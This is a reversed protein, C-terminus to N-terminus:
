SFTHYVGVCEGIISINNVSEVIPQYVSDSSCPNLIVQEGQWAVKKIFAETDENIRVAYIKGSHYEYCKRVFVIDGDDIGAEVMSEGKVRLCIDAKISKDVYFTGDYNEECLIGDGACIEGLIPVPYSEPYIINTFGYFNSPEAVGLYNPERKIDRLGVPQNEDVVSLLDDLPMYMARAVKAFTELSPIIAEGTKPNRNNELQNIYAVSLSARSAFDKLSMKGNRMRYDYIVDGLLM